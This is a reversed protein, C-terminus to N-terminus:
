RELQRRLHDLAIRAQEAVKPDDSREFAHLAHVNNWSERLMTVIAAIQKQRDDETTVARAINLPMEKSRADWAMKGGVAAVVVFAMAALQKRSRGAPGASGGVRWLLEEGTGRPKM